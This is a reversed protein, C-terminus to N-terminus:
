EEAILIQATPSSIPLLSVLSSALAVSASTVPSAVCPLRLSHASPSYPPADVEQRHVPHVRHLVLPLVLLEPAHIQAASPEATGNGPVSHSQAKRRKGM